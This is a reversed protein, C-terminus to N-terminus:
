AVENMARDFCRVQDDIDSMVNDLFRREEHFSVTDFDDVDVKEAGGDIRNVKRLQFDNSIDRRTDSLDVLLEALLIMPVEAELVVLNLKFGRTKFPMDIDDDVYRRGASATTGFGGGATGGAPGFEDDLPFDLSSAVAGSSGMGGSGMGGGMGGGGMEGMLEADDSGGAPAAPSEPASSDGEGSRSGGVLMLENLARIPVDSLRADGNIRKISELLSQTLWLDEQADWILKWSPRGGAKIPAYHISSEECQINGVVKNASSVRIPDVKHYVEEHLEAYLNAYMYKPKNDAFEGRYAMANMMSMRPAPWVMMKKQQLYLSKSVDRFAKEQQDNIENLKTAWEQNQNTSQKAATLAGNVKTTRDEIDAKVAGSAMYWGILPMILTLGFFIWFKHTILPQLKEM